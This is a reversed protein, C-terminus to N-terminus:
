IEFNKRNQLNKLLIPNTVTQQYKMFDASNIKQKNTTEIQATMPLIHFKIKSATNDLSSQDAVMLTSIYENQSHHQSNDKKDLSRNKDIKLSIKQQQLRGEKINLAM